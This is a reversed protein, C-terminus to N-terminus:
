DWQFFEKIKKTVALFHQVEELTNYASLSMRVTAPENLYRMLPQACHHGARVAIGELDYATAVDHPHIGDMNFSIIGHKHSIADQYLKIGAITSLGDYAVQTLTDVYPDIADYGVSEIYRIAEALGVVQSIPMTGAEFKWPMEKFDAQYDGVEHIMEGGFYLPAMRNGFNEQIYCVGIGTPGHMKHSSFCYGTVKLADLDVSIHPVAQAGDVFVLVGHNQAWRTIMTLDQQVGLVNSIHGIVIAKVRSLKDPHQDLWDQLQWQYGEDLPVYTLEAGQRRCVEQLPVITSHHELRSTLVIDGSELLPQLGNQLLLNMGETTGRTFVIEKSQCKLFRAITERAQEYADTSRQALTHVGRHINAHDLHYHSVMADIVAQPIQSTAANDLYILSEGNVDQHLIPFDHRQFVPSMM